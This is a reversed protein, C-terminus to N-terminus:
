RYGILYVKLGAGAVTSGIGDIDITIEADDALAADSIVAPAAATTSTKEGADITLKTSLISTGGENIDVTLASGTPATAVSARVATLTMPWPMRFAVKGAGTTLNTTEDSVAICIVENTFHSADATKSKSGDESDFILVKDAGIPTAKAVIDGGSDEDLRAKWVAAGASADKCTFEVGTSTNIWRSGIEYGDASDDGVGPDTTASFNNKRLGTANLIEGAARLTTGTGDNAETGLDIQAM